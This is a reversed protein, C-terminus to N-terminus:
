MIRGFQHGFRPRAKGFAAAQEATVVLPQSQSEVHVVAGAVANAVDDHAGKHPPHDIIDRGTGRTTRRELAVLQKELKPVNLLRVRQSNLVPLFDRYIDTKSRESAVYTIGQLRFREAVWAGAYRDGTVKRLGYSKLLTCFREVVADPNAGPQEERVADLITIDGDAHAIAMTMSDAGGGSPDVFATYRTSPAPGRELLSGDKMCAQVAELTVFAEVDKRFEAGWEAAAAVPDDAYAQQIEEALTTSKHMALSPAQLVLIRPSGDSGFHRRYTDYLVGKRAYPSSLVFLPAGLTALGPRLARLVEADPNASGEIQWFAIEDCIAAVPTPGRVTKWSATMVQIDIANTLRITDATPAGDLLEAFMPVETFIGLLYRFAEGATDKAAAMVPIRGRQGPALDGEYDVLGAFYAAAVAFARTKGGRRGVVGWVERCPKDPERERGTLATFVVREDDTLPEGQSAILVVRWAAWTEGPLITGFIEPDELANRM